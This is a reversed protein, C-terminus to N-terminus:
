LPIICTHCMPCKSQINLWKRLCLSHFYHKCPTVKAVKLEDLCIACVDQLVEIEEQTAMPLSNLKQKVQHRLKLSQWGEKAPTWINFYIHLLAMIVQFLTWELSFDCVRYCLVASIVVFEFLRCGGNVYYVYDDLEEWLETQHAEYKYLTYLALAALIQAITIINPTIFPIREKLGYVSIALFISLSLLSMCFALTYMHKKLNSSHQSPLSILIPEVVEFMSRVMASVILYFIVHLLALKRSLSCSSLGTYLCLFFFGFGERMGNPSIATEENPLANNGHFSFKIVFLILGCVKQIIFCCALMTLTSSCTQAMCFHFVQYLNFNCTENTFIKIVLSNYTFFCSFLTILCTPVELRRWHFMILITFGYMRYMWQIIRLSNIVDYVIRRLWNYTGEIVLYVSVAFFGCLWMSPYERWSPRYLFRTIIPISSLSFIIPKFSLLTRSYLIVSIIYFIWACIIIPLLPFIDEFHLAEFGREEITNYFDVSNYVNLYLVASMDLCLLTYNYFTFLQDRSTLFLSIM